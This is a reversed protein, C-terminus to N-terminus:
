RCRLNVSFRCVVECGRLSPQAVSPLCVIKTEGERVTGRQEAIAMRNVRPLRRDM